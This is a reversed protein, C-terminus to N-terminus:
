APNPKREFDGLEEELKYDPMLQAGFTGAIVLNESFIKLLAIFCELVGRALRLLSWLQGVVEVAKEDELGLNLSLLQFIGLLNLLTHVFKQFALFSLFRL